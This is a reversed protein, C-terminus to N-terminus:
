QAKQTDPRRALFRLKAAKADFDYVVSTDAIVDYLARRQRGVIIGVFGLGLCIFGLPFTIVRVAARGAHLDSGDSRVVRLGLLAKGPTKGSASYCYWYYICWWAALPISWWPSSPNVSVDAGVVLHLVATVLAVIAIFSGFIVGTDVVYAVFRTIAGAYHGLLSTEEVKTKM